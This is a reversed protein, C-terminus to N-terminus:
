GEYVEVREFQPDGFAPVTNERVTAVLRLGFGGLDKRRADGLLLRRARSRFLPLLAINASEYFIDTAALLDFRGDLTNLGPACEIDVGNVAANERCAALALPDQDVAVVRRAGARAAALAVVGSGAGFDIVSCGRVIAPNRHIYNAVTLGAAWCLSWYPPAAAVRRAADNELRLHGAERDMLWLRIQTAGPLLQLSLPFQPLSAAMASRLSEPPHMPHLNM